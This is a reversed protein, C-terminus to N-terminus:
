FLDSKNALFMLKTMQKLQEITDSCCSIDRLMNWFKDADRLWLPIYYNSLPLPDFLVSDCEVNSM